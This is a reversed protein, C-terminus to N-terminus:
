ATLRHKLVQSGPVVDELEECQFGSDALLQIVRAPEVSTSVVRLIRDCDDLDFNWHGQGALLNLGPALKRVEAESTVSTIFVQAM